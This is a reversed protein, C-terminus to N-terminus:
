LNPCVESKIIMVCINGRTLMFGFFRNFISCISVFCGGFKAIIGFIVTRKKPNIKKINQYIITQTPIFVAYMPVGVAYMPVGVAYM